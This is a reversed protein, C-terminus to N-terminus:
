FHLNLNTFQNFFLALFDIDNLIIYVASSCVHFLGACKQLFTHLMM